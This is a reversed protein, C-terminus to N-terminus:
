HASLDSADECLHVQQSPWVRLIYHPQLPRPAHLQTISTHGPFLKRVVSCAFAGSRLDLLKVYAHDAVEMSVLNELLAVFSTGGCSASLHLHNSGRMETAPQGEALSRHSQLCTDFSIVCALLDVMSLPLQPRLCRHLCPIVVSILSGCDFMELIELPIPYQSCLM